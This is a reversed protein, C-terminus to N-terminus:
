FTLYKQHAEKAAKKDVGLYFQCTTELNDHGLLEKIFGIPCGNFLLTTAMTHRLIHPTIKKLLGAQRKAQRFWRIITDYVPRKGDPLVFLWESADKRHNVYEKIWGLARPTFFVTREKNRKGIIRAEGTEFNVASRKLSLAESIRMGTGLLVEVLSRFVLGRLDIQKGSYVPIASVFREIEEPTLFIVERKPVRPPRIFKPDLVEMGLGLTCFRLFSRLANIVGCMRAPGADRSAMAAKLALVKERDLDNPTIDGLLFLAFLVGERYSELSKKALRWEHEAYALYYPLLERITPNDKGPINQRDGITPPPAPRVGALAPFVSNSAM